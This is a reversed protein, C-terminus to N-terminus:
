DVSPLPLLDSVYRHLHSYDVAFTRKIRQCVSTPMPECGNEMFSNLLETELDKESELINNEPSDRSVFHRGLLINSNNYVVVEIFPHSNTRILHIVNKPNYVRGDDSKKGYILLSKEVKQGYMVTESGALHYFGFEQNQM